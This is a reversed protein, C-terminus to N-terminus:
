IYRIVNETMSVNRQLGSLMATNDPTLSVGTCDQKMKSYTVSVAHPDLTQDGVMLVSHIRM